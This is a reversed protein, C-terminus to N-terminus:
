CLLLSCKRKSESFPFVSGRSKPNLRRLASRNPLRGKFSLTYPSPSHGIQSTRMETPCCAVAPHDGGTPSTPGAVHPSGPRLSKDELERPSGACGLILVLPAALSCSRRRSQVGANNSVSQTVDPRESLRESVLNRM